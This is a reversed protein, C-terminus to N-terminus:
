VTVARGLKRTLVASLRAHLEEGTKDDKWAGTAADRTFHGAKMEASLWIQGAAHHSNIVLSSGDPLEANIIEGSSDVDLETLEGLARDLAKLEDAALSDFSDKTPV